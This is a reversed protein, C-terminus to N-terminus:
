FLPVSPGGSLILSELLASVGRPDTWGVTYRETAKYRMSDTEFDGEM